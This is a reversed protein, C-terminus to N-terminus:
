VRGGTNRKFHYSMYAQGVALCREMIPLQLAKHEMGLRTCIYSFDVKPFPIDKFNYSANDNEALALSVLDRHRYDFIDAFEPFSLWKKLYSSVYPWDFCLPMIRKNGLGLKKVWNEFVESSDFYTLGHVVARDYEAKRARSHHTRTYAEERYYETTTRFDHIPKITLSIPSYRRDRDFTRDLPMVCVETMDYHDPDSGTADICISCLLNGDRADHLM